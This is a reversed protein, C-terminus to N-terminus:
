VCMCVCVHVCIYLMCRIFWFIYKLYFMIYIYLTMQSKQSWHNITASFFRAKKSEGQFESATERFHLKGVQSTQFHTAYPVEGMIAVIMVLM